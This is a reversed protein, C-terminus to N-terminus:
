ETIIFFLNQLLVLSKEQVTNLPREDPFYQVTTCTKRVNLLVVSFFNNIWFLKSYGPLYLSSKFTYAAYISLHIIM